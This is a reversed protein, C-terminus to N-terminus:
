PTRRLERSVAVSDSPNCVKYLSSDLLESADYGLTRGCSPSLYLFLGNPSLVHVVDDANQLLMKDWPQRHLGSVM